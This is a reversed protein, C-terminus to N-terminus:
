RESFPTIYARIFYAITFVTVCCECSHYKNNLLIIIMMNRRTAYYYIRFSHQLKLLEYDNVLHRSPTHVIVTALHRYLRVLLCTCYVSYSELLGSNYAHEPTWRLATPNPYSITGPDTIYIYYPPNHM